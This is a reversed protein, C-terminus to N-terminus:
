AAALLAPRSKRRYAVFGLGAFGLLMMAWTSAEPVGSSVTSISVNDLGTDGVYTTASTQQFMITASTSNAIFNYDFFAWNDWLISQGPGGTNVTNSSIPATFTVAASSSGSTMSVVDQEPVGPAHWNEGGLEFNVDYMQGPTLSTITQAIYDGPQDAGNGILAFIRGEPAVASGWFGTSVLINTTTGWGTPNFSGDSGPSILGAQAEFGGNIITAALTPSSAVLSVLLAPAVLGFCTKGCLM